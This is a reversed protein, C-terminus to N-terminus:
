RRRDIIVYLPVGVLTFVVFCLGLGLFVTGGVNVGKELVSREPQERDYYVVVPQGVPYRALIEEAEERERHSNEGSKITFGTLQQREVEYEYSVAPQWSDGGDEDRTRGLESFIIVGRSEVWDTNTRALYALAAYVGVCLGLAVLAALCGVPRSMGGESNGRVVQRFLSDKLERNDEKRDMCGGHFGM